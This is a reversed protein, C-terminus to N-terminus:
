VVSKRDRMGYLCLFGIMIAIFFISALTKLYNLKNGVPKVKSSDILKWPANQKEWEKVEETTVM